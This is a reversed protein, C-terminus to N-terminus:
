DSTVYATFFDVGLFTLGYLDFLFGDIDILKFLIEHFNWWM